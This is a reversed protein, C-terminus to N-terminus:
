PVSRATRPPLDGEAGKLSCTISNRPSSREQASSHCSNTAATSSPRSGSPLPLSASTADRSVWARYSDARVPLATVGSSRTHTVSVGSVAAGGQERHDGGGVRQVPQAVDEIQDVAQRRLGVRGHLRQEHGLAAALQVLTDGSVDRLLVDGVRSHQEVVALGAEGGGAVDPDFGRSTLDQGEDVIIGNGEGIPGDLYHAGATRVRDDPKRASSEGEPVVLRHAPQRLLKVPEDAARAPGAPLVCPLHPVRPAVVHGEASLRELGAPAEVVAVAEM